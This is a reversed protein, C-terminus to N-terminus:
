VCDEYESSDDVRDTLIVVQYGRENPLPLATREHIYKLFRDFVTSNRECKTQFLPYVGGKLYKPASIILRLVYVCESMRPTIIFLISPSSPM